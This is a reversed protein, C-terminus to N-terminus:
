VTYRKTISTTLEEISKFCNEERVESVKHNSKFDNTCRQIGYSTGIIKSDRYKSVKCDRIETYNISIVIGSSIRGKGIFYVKDALNHKHELTM